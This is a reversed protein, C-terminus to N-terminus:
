AVKFKWIPYHKALLKMTGKALKKKNRIEERLLQKAISQYLAKTQGDTEAIGPVANIAVALAYDMLQPLKEIIMRTRMILGYSVLEM